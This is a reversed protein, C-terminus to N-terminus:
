TGLLRHEPRVYGLIDLICSESARRAISCRRALGVEWRHIGDRRFEWELMDTGVVEVESSVTVANYHVSERVPQLDIRSFTAAIDKDLCQSLHDFIEIDWLGDGGIASFLVCSVFCLAKEFLIADAVAEARHSIGM